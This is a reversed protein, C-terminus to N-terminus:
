IQSPAVARVSRALEEPEFIEKSCGHEGCVVAFPKTSGTQFMPKKAMLVAIGPNVTKKAASWLDNGVPEGSLGHLEVTRPGLQLAEWAYVFESAFIGNAQVLRLPFRGLIDWAKTTKAPDYTASGLLALALAWRSNASLSRAPEALKGISGSDRRVDGYGGDPHAFSGDVASVLRGGIELTKGALEESQTGAVALVAELMAAQDDFLFLQKGPSHRVLGEHDDWLERIMFDWAASAAKVWERRDLLAGAETLASIALCNVGSFIERIVKPHERSARQEKGLRYYEEDADQSSYFAGSERDRLTGLVYGAVGYATQRYRDDGLVIHARALNQLFGANTELMKEYHPVKWDRTVSYRFVGGEVPDYLGDTMHDLTSRVAAAVEEDRTRACRELFLNMAAANPFKPARGFGGWETDHASLIDEFIADVFEADIAVQAQGSEPADLRQSRQNRLAEDVEGKEKAEIMASLIRKMDEPPIYTAGWLSEGEDSLFATTPFGGRNYRESIDPRKDIDVRIPVFDRNVTRVIDVNSYTTEDM